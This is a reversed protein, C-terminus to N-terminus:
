KMQSALKGYGRTGQYTYPEQPILKPQDKLNGGNCKRRGFCNWRRQSKDTPCIPDAPAITLTLPALILCMEKPQRHLTDELSHPMGDCESMSLAENLEMVEVDRQEKEFLVKNMLQKYMHVEGENVPYVSM